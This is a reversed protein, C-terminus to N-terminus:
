KSMLSKFLVVNNLSSAYKEYNNLSSISAKASLMKYLLSPHTYYNASIAM